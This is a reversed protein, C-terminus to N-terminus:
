RPALGRTAPGELVRGDAAFRSGHLPCDWSREADNWTVVGGLHPCVASMRRTVGGTTCVAVPSVGDREIGGVGEPPDGRRGAPPRPRVWGSVLQAGVEANLRAGERWGQGARRGWPQWADAWAPGHERLLDATVALAAAVATTMGWKDYGTALLVRDDKPLLRGVLPLGDTSAYDQASWVHTAVAGPFHQGAWDVLERVRASTPVARGVVHGAGGVLLLDPTVAAPGTDRPVVIRTGGAHGPGPDSPVMPTSRISRSQEDVSLYMGSPPPATPRLAVAYSRLPELRAFAGSRDLVPTGTALVVARASVDGDTTRLVCRGRAGRRLGHVRVGEVLTGGRGALDATMAALVDLPDLQAQGDLAVARLVPFPLGTDSRSEVPLGASRAAALEAEVRDRGHQTTAYTVATMRQYPVAHEECYRLLWDRGERGAEVYARVDGVSHERALESLRAGQLLSVKATSGGTTGAGVWRAELVVVRKGARALLVATTMGTLGAGVVAVDYPEDVSAAIAAASRERAGPAPGATRRDWWLSARAVM